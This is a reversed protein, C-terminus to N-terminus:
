KSNLTIVVLEPRNNIRYPLISNGIGRSVIMTTEDEKFVGSTYKPFLGQNPAVVGGVFPVRIQGGHAHGTLVLDIKNEVYVNYLEPRHSLLISFATKDYTLAKIESKVIMEDSVYVDHAIAPDNIGLINLKVDGSKIEEVKNDLIVVNNNTLERSLTSYESIRAEHNGTVYYIPACDKIEKIFDIAANIDTKSSDVLDGTLAILDPHQNKIEKILSKNLIKSKTNHLDSVQVIKFGNFENSIKESDIEYKTIQLSNNEYFLYVTPLFLVCALAIVLLVIFATKKKM